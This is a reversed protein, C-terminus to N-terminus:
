TQDGVASSRGASGTSARTGRRAPPGTTVVARYAAVHQRISDPWQRLSLDPSDGILGDAARMSAVLDDATLEGAYLHIWRHGVEDALDRNVPNDPVLVPRDLSLVALVSGSNHMLRYPLVVLASSTVIRVLEADDLFQLTLEIRRDGAALEEIMRRLEPTSPKGAVHLTYSRRPEDSVQSFATLLTEVGKYRRVLGVYSFRDPVAEARPQGAFWGRYHGHPIVVSQAQELGPTHGNLKIVLATRADVWDLLLHEHRRLGEPRDVNHSTRIIPIRQVSLRVLLLALLLQRVARRWWSRGELLIEPWHVHFADYRGLLAVRYSFLRIRVGNEAQLGRVLMIMYPNTTPRVTRLSQLVVM